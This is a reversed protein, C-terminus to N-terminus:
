YIALKTVAQELSPKRFLVRLLGTCLSMLAKSIHREMDTAFM